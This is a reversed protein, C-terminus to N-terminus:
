RASRHLGAVLYILIGALNLIGYFLYVGRGGFDEVIFGGAFQCVITGCNSALATYLPIALSLKDNGVIKAIYKVVEVLFIGNVFGQVFFTGVLLTASPGQGYWLYRMASVAMSLLLIKELGIRSSLRASWAMFPAESLAMLLMAAGVGALTGGEDVYLFSFYVNHALCPGCIFFASLLLALYSKNKLIARFHGREKAPGDSEEGNENALAPTKYLFLAFATLLFFGSFLLFISGTGFRDSILGALGVGCAYGVAGWKRAHGFPYAAEMTTADLLPFVASEFFFVFTYLLLFPIYKETLLLVPCFVATSLCLFILMKKNRSFRHHMGAWFPNALIGIATASATVIGIQGGSFGIKSLYQGILPFLAGISAYSSAYLVSFIDLGLWGAIKSKM